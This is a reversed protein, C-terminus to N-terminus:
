CGNKFLRKHPIDKEELQAKKIRSPRSHLHRSPLGGLCSTCHRRLLPGSPLVVAPRLCNFSPPRYCSERVSINPIVHTACTGFRHRQPPTSSYGNQVRPHISLQLLPHLCPPDLWAFFGAVGADPLNMNELTASSYHFCSQPTHCPRKPIGASGQQHCVFSFSPYYLTAYYYSYYDLSPPSKNSSPQVM